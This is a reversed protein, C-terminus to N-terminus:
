RPSLIFQPTVRGRFENISLKINARITQGLALQAKVEDAWTTDFTLVEVGDIIFKFSQGSWFDPNWDRTYVGSDFILEFSTEGAFDQGFPRLGNQFDITKKVGDAFLQPNLTNEYVFLNDNELVNRKTIIQNTHTIDIAIHNQPVLQVDESAEMVMQNAIPVVRYFLDVFLEYQSAQINFGAASTHGGGRAIDPHIDNMLALIVDLPYAPNSRASASIRDAQKPPTSYLITDDEPNDYSFVVAPLNTQNAIQGAILGSIGGRTNACLVTGFPTNDSDQLATLVRNRLTSKEDNLAILAKIAKHRTSEDTSIFAVMGELSSGHVRRPANLLPSIYWGFLEENDPLPIPGKNRNARLADKNAQLMTILDYLGHFVVDYGPYGTDMVKSYDVAGITARYKLLKNVIEVASKVMYRNEDLIPMVDAINAIGSFVILRQIDDLSDKNYMEAYALMAKWAVTAGANGKFPYLDDPRNPNVLALAQPLTDAGLHHDTVLVPIGLDKAHRIGDFARIGNDATLILKVKYDGQEYMSKMKDVMSPSLGYGENMSPIYIRHNIGFRSLSATLIAASTIGDTDYDPSVVLLMNPNKDQEQKFRHLYSVLERMDKYGFPSHLHDPSPHRIRDFEEPTVGLAIRTQEETIAHLQM